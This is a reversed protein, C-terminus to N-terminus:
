RINGRTEGDGRNYKSARAFGPWLFGTLYLYGNQVRVDDGADADDNQLWYQYSLLEDIEAAATASYEKVAFTTGTVTVTTGTGNTGDPEKYNIEVSRQM